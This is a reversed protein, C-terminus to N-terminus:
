SEDKRNFKSKYKIWFSELDSTITEDTSNLYYVNRIRDTSHQPHERRFTPLWKFTPESEFHNRVDVVRARLADFKTQKKAM